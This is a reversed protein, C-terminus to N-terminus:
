TVYLGYLQFLSVSGVFRILVLVDEGAGGTAEM